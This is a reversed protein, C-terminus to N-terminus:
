LYLAPPILLHCFPSFSLPRHALLLHQSPPHCALWTLPLLSHFIGWFLLLFCASSSLFDLSHPLFLSLRFCTLLLCSFACSSLLFLGETYHICDWLFCSSFCLLSLTNSLLSHMVLSCLLSLSLPLTSLCFPSPLLFFLVGSLICCAGQCREEWSASALLLFSLILFFLLTSHLLLDM